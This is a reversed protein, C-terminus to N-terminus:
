NVKKSQEETPTSEKEAPNAYMKGVSKLLEGMDISNGMKSFLEAPNLLRDLKTEVRSVVKRLERIEDLISLTNKDDM